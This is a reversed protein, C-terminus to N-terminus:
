YIFVCTSYKIFYVHFQIYFQSNASAFSDLSAVSGANDTHNRHLDVSCDETRSFHILALIANIM